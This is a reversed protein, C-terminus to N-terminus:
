TRHTAPVECWRMWTALLETVAEKRGIRGIAAGALKIMPLDNRGNGVAEYRTM